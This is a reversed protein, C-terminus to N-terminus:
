FTANIGITPFIGISENAEIIGKYKNWEYRTINKNGTINQIDIYTILSWTRFNWRKDVRVDLSYYNPYRETNYLSIEQVGNLPNIPTYPRGGFWRFKSSIEWGKGLMYGGSAIFLFRNDYDSAREVGDLSTYKAEFVSLNVNGYFDDTLFKQVFFEIGKSYGIGKSVLPELGFNEPRQFDGGNNALIFYPRISSVPYNSYDKYYVEITARLDDSPLYEIGAIYHDARINTLGTNQSNSILWIYSPSQYFIGYSANINFNEFLSYTLSARPSFYNRDNIFDFYDYRLGLNLKVKDFLRQTLQVYGFIKFSNNDTDINVAPIIIRGPDGFYLTDAETKIENRFNILKGGIGASIQSTRTPLWNFESKLNTEGEESLNKFTEVFAADRGTFSFNTYNRSFTILSFAKPSYVTRLEYSNVYGWQNNSL